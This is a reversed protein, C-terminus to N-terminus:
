SVETWNFKLYTRISDQKQRTLNARKAHYAVTSKALGLREGIERYSLNQLLSEIVKEKM